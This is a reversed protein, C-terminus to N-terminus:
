EETAGTDLGCIREFLQIAEPTLVQVIDLFSKSVLRQASRLLLPVPSSPEHVEYYRCIRELAQVVDQPSRIEGPVASGGAGGQGGAAAAEEESLPAGYGRRTLQGQLTTSIEDLAKQFGSLDVAQDAGVRQTLLSDIAAVHSAAEIAARATAQLVDTETDEFAADVQSADPPPNEADAPAPIEGSAIRIDHMSLRGLQRSDTLPAERVSRIFEMPDQYSGEPVALSAIVNVREIPDPDEPDLQPHVADWHRELAARLVALGDRLGPLGELKLAALTLHLIVRLDKTRELLALGHAAVERWNAGQAEIVSDGVQQEPTGQAARELALYDPDYSLDEGCPADPSIEALFKEVDILAM